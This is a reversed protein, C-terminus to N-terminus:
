FLTRTTFPENTSPDLSGKVSTDMKLFSLTMNYNMYFKDDEVFLSIVQKDFSKGSNFDLVFNDSEFFEGEGLTVPEGRGNGTIMMSAYAKGEEDAVTTEIADPIYEVLDVNVEKGDINLSSSIHNTTRKSLYLSESTSVTTEGVKADVNFYTDSSMMTSSSEGERIHMTGEYGVYRTIAAGILIVIFAAHFIFMPAKKLTYMKYKDINLLLNMALLGLLVEFWRANYIDAKATVTGYDNEIFTAYGIAFAFISMLVAMTKMSSFISLLQKM